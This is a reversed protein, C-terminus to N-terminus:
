APDKASIILKSVARPRVLELVGLDVTLELVHHVIHRARESLDDSKLQEYRVDEVKTELKCTIEYSIPIMRVQDPNNDDVQHHLSGDRTM